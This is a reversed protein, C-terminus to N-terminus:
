RRVVLWAVFVALLVVAAGAAAAFLGEWPWPASPQRHRGRGRRAGTALHMPRAQPPSTPIEGTADPRRLAPPLDALYPALNLTSEGLLARAYEPNM